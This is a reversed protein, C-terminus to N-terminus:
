RGSPANKKLLSRWILTKIELLEQGYDQAADVEVTEKGPNWGRIFEHKKRVAELSEEPKRRLSEEPTLMLKVALDPQRAAAKEIYREERSALRSFLKRLAGSRIKPLIVERIRPGDNYGRVLTQPYRDTVAVGGMETFAAARNLNKYGHKAIKVCDLVTLVGIVANVAGNKRYKKLRRILVKWLSHYQVGAGLYFSRADLKWSLWRVIEKSVTSKGSGDQGVLAVSLGQGAAPIKRRIFLRKTFKREAAHLLSVWRIAFSKGAASLASETRLPSFAKKVLGRLRLFEAAGFSESFILKEVPEPDPFYAKLIERARERDARPKLYDFDLREKETLRFSKRFRAKRVSSAPRELCVRVWRQVLELSPETVRVGTEGDTVATDLAEEAWPLTYERVGKRGTILRYHLHVHILKGTSPDMGVWDFVDPFAAGYQSRCELFDLARLEAEARDRDRPDALVDLDTEGNLGRLIKSNGKWHCYRVPAANWAEFLARSLALYAERSENPSKSEEM